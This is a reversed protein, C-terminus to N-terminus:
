VPQIASELDALLEAFLSKEFSLLRPVSAKAAVQMQSAMEELHASEEALISRLNLRDGLSILVDQYIRYFWNARIEVICSTATYAGETGISRCIHRDLLHIYLHTRRTGLIDAKRYSLDRGVRQEAARKFFWAHRTEEALHKLRAGNACAGHPHLTRMIKRSGVHELLSLTNLLYGHTAPHATALALFRRTRDEVEPNTDLSVASQKSNLKPM